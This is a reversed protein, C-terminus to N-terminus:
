PCTLPREGEFALRRNDPDYLGAETITRPNQRLRDRMLDRIPAGDEVRVRDEERARAFVPDAGTAIFDSTVLTLRQNPRVRRGNERRLEVTLEGRTCRAQARLGGISWISGDDALSRRLLDSLEAGTLEVIAFRNDFPFVEHLEGYDVPGPDFPARIGGGNMLAVDAERLEHMLDALFNGLACERDRPHELRDAVELGTTERRLEAARAMDAAVVAEVEPDATVPAGEYEGPQCDEPTAGRDHCMQKPAFIQVGTVRGSQRHVSLDIRGFAVGYAWSEIIAVGNVRHAVAQHTHGAVIVDVLDEPLDRAVEFIEEDVECSDHDDPDDHEQCKGGAHATVVIVDAGDSRLRRAHATITDALPAMRLDSVNGSITTRLSNEATVGIIGIEIGAVTVTATPVIPPWSVPEGSAGDVINSSLIPFAAETARARLAGRADQEDNAPVVPDGIPGFDFEHNGVTAAGYRLANYARIVAAGENLNSELTGQFMDGGDILLVGGHEAARARRLNNVYGSFVPLREIHGHLDNTGIISVIVEAPPAPAPTETHAQPGPTPGEVSHSPGGCAVLASFALLLAMRM